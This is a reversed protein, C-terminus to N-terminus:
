QLERRVAGRGREEEKKRKSKQREERERRAMRAEQDEMKAKLERALGCKGRLTKCEGEERMRMQEQRAKARDEGRKADVSLRHVAETKKM